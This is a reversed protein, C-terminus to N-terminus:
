GIRRGFPPRVTGRLGGPLPWPLPNGPSGVGRPVSPFPRPAVVPPGWPTEGRPPCPYQPGPRKAPGVEVPPMTGPFTETASITLLKAEIVLNRDAM